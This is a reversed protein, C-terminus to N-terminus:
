HQWLVELFMLVQARRVTLKRAYVNIKGQCWRAIKQRKSIEGRM